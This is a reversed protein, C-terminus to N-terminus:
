WPLETGSEANVSRDDRMLRHVSAIPLRSLSRRWASDDMGGM